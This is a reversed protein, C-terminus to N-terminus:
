EQPPLKVAQSAKIFANSAEEITAGSGGITGVQEGDANRLRSYMSVYYLISVPAGEDTKRITKKIHVWFRRNEYKEKARLEDKFAKPMRRAFRPLLMLHRTESEENSTEYDTSLIDALRSALEGILATFSGNQEATLNEM